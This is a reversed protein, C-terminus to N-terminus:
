AYADQTSADGPTADDAAAEARRLAAPFRTALPASADSTTPHRGTPQRGGIVAELLDDWRADDLPPLDM